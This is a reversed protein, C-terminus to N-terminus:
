SRVGRPGSPPTSRLRVRLGRDARLVGVIIMMGLLLFIVNWDVGTRESFFAVEADVVGIVVM